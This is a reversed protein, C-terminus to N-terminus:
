RIVKQFTVIILSPVWYQNLYSLVLTPISQFSDLTVQCFYEMLKIKDFFCPFLLIFSCIVAEPNEDITVM